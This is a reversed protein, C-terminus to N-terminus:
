DSEMPQFSIEYIYLFLSKAICEVPITNMAPNKSIEGLSFAGSEGTGFSFGVLLNLTRNGAWGM